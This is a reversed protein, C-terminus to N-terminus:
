AATYEKISYRCHNNYEDANQDIVITVCTLAIVYIIYTIYAFKYINTYQNILKWNWTFSINLPSFSRNFSRNWSMKLLKWISIDSNFSRRLFTFWRLGGRYICKNDGLILIYTNHMISSHKKQFYLLKVFVAM